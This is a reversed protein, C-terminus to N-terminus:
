FGWDFASVTFTGDATLTTAYSFANNTDLILTNSNAPGGSNLNFPGFLGLAGALISVYAAEVLAGGNGTYVDLYSTTFAYGTCRRRAGPRRHLSGPLRSQEARVARHGDGHHHRALHRHQRLLKAM